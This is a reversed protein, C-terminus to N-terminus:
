PNNRALRKEEMNWLSKATYVAYINAFIMAALGIPANWKYLDLHFLIGETAGYFLQTLAMTYNAVRVDPDLDSAWMMMSAVASAFLGGAFPMLWGWFGTPPNLDEFKVWFVGFGFGIEEIVGGGAIGIQAHGFEHFWGYVFNFVILIIVFQLPNFKYKWGM